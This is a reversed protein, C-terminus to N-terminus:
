RVFGIRAPPWVILWARGRFRHGDIPGDYRSDQSDMSHDGLVFYGDAPCTTPGKKFYPGYPYYTLFELEKPRAVPKGDIVLWNNASAITEGPLGGVRKMVNIGDDNRFAVIEFRRPRRFWYSVHESLVWDNASPERPGRGFKDGRLTPAMSPSVIETVDFCVTYVVFLLGIVAFVNRAFHFARRRLSRRPSANGPAPTVAPDAMTDRRM